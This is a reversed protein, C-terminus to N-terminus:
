RTVRGRAPVGEALLRPGRAQLCSTSLIRLNASHFNKREKDSAARVKTRNNGGQYLQQRAPLLIVICTAEGQFTGKACHLTV